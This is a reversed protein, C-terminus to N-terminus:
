FLYFFFFVTLSNFCELSELCQPQNAFLPPRLLLFTPLELQSKLPQSITRCRCLVSNQWSGFSHLSLKKELIELLSDLQTFGQNGDPPVKSQSGLQAVSSKQSYFQSSIFKHQKLCSFVVLFFFGLLAFSKFLCTVLSTHTSFLCIFLHERHNTNPFPLNLVIILDWKGCHKFNLLSIRDLTPLSTSYISSAYAAQPFIFHYM